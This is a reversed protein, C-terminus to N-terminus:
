VEFELLQDNLNVIEGERANIQKIRSNATAAVLNEMKMAEIIILKDGTAVEDGPKVFIKIIKGSLPSELYPQKTSKKHAPMFQELEAVRTSRVTALVEVGAHTLKYGNLVPKVMARIEAGNVTGRFLSTGIRWSSRVSIRHSEYRMNYGGEVPKIIIPYSTGDLNVVWRTGARDAQDAMARIEEAMHVFISVALFIQTIESTIEAGSFGQPYEQAIFGTSFTGKIFNQNSMIAQLFSMNHSIGSIVYEGLAKKM